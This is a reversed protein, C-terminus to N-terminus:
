VVELEGHRVTSCADNYHALLQDCIYSWTRHEVAAHAGASLRDRRVPDNVLAVVHARMTAIDGPPYLLGTVDPEILDLPGGVGPAIVPVGCAEAEQIAQGFTELEGPHVFVDMSAVVRPLEDGDLKGCFVADPLREELEARLPGDGVIVLRSGPIGALVALDAVRKEPALRGMYGVIVEGNPALEARLTEDRRDPSFRVSDVGRGWIRVRPVGREMLTQATYTSPALTLTALSHIRRLRHWLVPTIRAWGYSTAYAAIETQFVAVSPISMRSTALVANYGMSFPAALHVVDPAFDAFIREFQSTPTLGIRVDAYGPLSMANLAIVRTGAYEEPVGEDHPAIVLAEHGTDRLHELVRLVSNTVGNVQPLFSEAVIAVRM